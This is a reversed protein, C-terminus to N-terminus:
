SMLLVLQHHANPFPAPMPSHYFPLGRAPTMSTGVYRPASGYAGRSEGTPFAPRKEEENSRM